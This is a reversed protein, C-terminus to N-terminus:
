HNGASTGSRDAHLKHPDFNATLVSVAWREELRKHHCCQEIETNGKGAAQNQNDREEVILAPTRVVNQRSRDRNVAM